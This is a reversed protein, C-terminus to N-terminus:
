QIKNKEIEKECKELFNDIEFVLPCGKYVEDVNIETYVYDFNELDKPILNHLYLLFPSLGILLAIICSLLFTIKKNM